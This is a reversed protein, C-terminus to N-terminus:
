ATPTEISNHPLNFAAEIKRAVRCLAERACRSQPTSYMGDMHIAVYTSGAICESLIEEDLEGCVDVCGSERLQKELVEARSEAEASFKELGDSDAFVQAILDGCELRHLIAQAQAKTFTIRQTQM